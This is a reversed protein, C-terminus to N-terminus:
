LDILNKMLKFKDSKIFKEMIDYEQGDVRVKYPKSLHSHWFYLFFSEAFDEHEDYTSYLTSFSSEFLRHYYRDPNRKKQYPIKTYYELESFIKDDHDKYDANGRAEYDWSIKIFPYEQSPDARWSEVPLVGKEWSYIHAFEHILIALLTNNFGEEDVTVEVRDADSDQFASRARDTVWRNTSKKIRETNILITYYFEGSPGTVYDALGTSPIHEVLFIGVLRKNIVDLIESPLKMIQSRV